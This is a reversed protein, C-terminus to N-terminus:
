RLIHLMNLQKSAEEWIGAEDVHDPVASIYRHGFKIQMAQMPVSCRSGEKPAPLHADPSVSATDQSIVSVHFESIFVQQGRRVGFKCAQTLEQAQGVFGRHEGM